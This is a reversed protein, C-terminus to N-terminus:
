TRPQLKEVLVQVLGEVTYTDPVVPSQVGLEKAAAATVPGIAAVLTTNLLDAAQETDGFLTAFRRV